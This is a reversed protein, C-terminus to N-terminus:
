DLLELQNSDGIKSGSSLTKVIGYVGDYGPDIYVDEKRMKEIAKCIKEGGIKRIESLSINRLIEFENGLNSILEFYIDSNKQCNITKVGRVEAIMEMLPVIYEVKKHKKPRYKYSRDALENVRHDVGLVLMGGCVPCINNLKLAENPACVFKCARHGDYHYKGEEPFFEITGIFREDGSKIAGMIDKYSIKSKIINAERGLKGPSHADSNSVLTLHDLQSLRWNMFPDSSLGTEVAYIYKGLDGFAEEISEFGSRSGFMAFWPTWIHAPIFLSERETELVIKLLEASDLGLIPRGDAKLNGIRSLRNILNLAAKFSPVIILNHLRRSKNHRKYMNSIEVTLVFRLTQDRVTKPLSSDIKNSFKDKLKYLGNEAEELKERLEGLWVPHTFDGSGIINIGKIKGWKYLAELNMERSTARSYHSHIHLDVIQQM